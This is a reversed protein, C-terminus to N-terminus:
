LARAQSWMYKKTSLIVGTEDMANLFGDHDPDLGHHRWFPMVHHHLEDSLITELRSFPVSAPTRVKAHRSPRRPPPM